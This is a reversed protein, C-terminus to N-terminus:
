LREGYSCAADSWYSAAIFGCIRSVAQATTYKLVDELEMDGDIVHLYISNGDVVGPIEPGFEMGSMDTDVYPKAQAKAADYCSQWAFNGSDEGEEPPTYVVGVLQLNYLVEHINRVMGTYMHDGQTNQSDLSLVRGM